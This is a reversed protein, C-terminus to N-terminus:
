RSYRVSVVERVAGIHRKVGQLAQKQPPGFGTENRTDRAGKEDEPKQEDNEWCAAFTVTIVGIKGTAGRASAAGKGYETVLFSLVNDARKPDNTKHWGKVPVTSKPPVIYFRYKPRGTKEDRDDSYTFADIGDISVSVAAEHASDNYIRLEYIEDRQIDVCAQGREDTAKRASAAANVQPKVWLEVGYPSDRNTRIMSGDIYVRPSALRDQIAENRQGKTGLIPLNVTAAVLEAIERTGGLNAQVLLDKLEDGNDKDIIRAVIKIVRQDPDTKSKVLAYDGKVEFKANPQVVGKQRAELEARLIEELGPGANSALLGTPTFQGVSVPQKKVNKLINEALAAIEKRLEESARLTTASALFIAAAMMVRLMKM